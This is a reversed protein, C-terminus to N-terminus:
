KIELGNDYFLENTDLTFCLAGEQNEKEFLTSKTGYQFSVTSM